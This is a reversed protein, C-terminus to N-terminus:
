GPLCRFYGKIHPDDPNEFSKLVMMTHISGTPANGSEVFYRCWMPASMIEEDTWESWPKGARLIFDNWLDVWWSSIEGKPRLPHTADIGYKWDIRFSVDFVDEGHSHSLTVRLIEYQRTIEWSAYSYTNELRICAPKGFLESAADLFDLGSRLEAKIKFPILNRM